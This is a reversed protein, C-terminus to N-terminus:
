WRNSSRRNRRREEGRKKKKVVCSGNMGLDCQYRKEGEGERRLSDVREAAEERLKSWWVKM